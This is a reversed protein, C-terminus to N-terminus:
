QFPVPTLRKVHNVSLYPHPPHVPLVLFIGERGGVEATQRDRSAFYFACIFFFFKM